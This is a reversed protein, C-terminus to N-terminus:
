CLSMIILHTKINMLFILLQLKEIIDTMVM